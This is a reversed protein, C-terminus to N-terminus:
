ILDIVHFQIKQLKRELRKIINYVTGKDIGLDNAIESPKYIGDMWYEFVILEDDDGEAQKLLVIVQKRVEDINDVNESYPIIPLEGIFTNKNTTIFNSIESRLCGFLFEKFSCKAKGWDRGGEDLVKLIVDGVFDIPERGSFNKLGISKLRCIAYANMGDIIEELDVSLLADRLNM